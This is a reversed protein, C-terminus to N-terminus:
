GGLKAGIRKVGRGLGKLPVMASAHGPAKMGERSRRIVGIRM